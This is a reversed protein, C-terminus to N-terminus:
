CIRQLGPFLGPPLFCSRWTNRTRNIFTPQTFLDTGRWWMDLYILLHIPIHFEGDTPSSFPRTHFAGKGSRDCMKQLAEGQSAREGTAPRLFLNGLMGKISLRSSLDVFRSKSPGTTGRSAQDRKSASLLLTVLSPFM